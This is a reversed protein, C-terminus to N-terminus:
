RLAETCPLFIETRPDPISPDDLYVEWPAGDQRMANEQIWREAAGVFPGIGDHPVRGRM